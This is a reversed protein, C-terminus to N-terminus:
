TGPRPHRTCRPLAVHTTWHRNVLDALVYNALLQPKRGDEKHTPLIGVRLSAGVIRPFKERSTFRKTGGLGKGNLTCVVSGNADVHAALTGWSADIVADRLDVPKKSLGPATLVVNFGPDKAFGSREAGRNSALVALQRQLYDFGRTLWENNLGGWIELTTGTAGNPSTSTTGKCKVDEVDTGAQFEDWNFEVQTTQFQSKRSDPQRVKACTTLKLKLGLRRCAFRGIGKSGTKLRGLRKSM